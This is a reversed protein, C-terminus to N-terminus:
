ISCRGDHCQRSRKYARRAECRGWLTFLIPLGTWSIARRYRAVWPYLREALPRTLRSGWLNALIPMGATRYLLEFAPVGKIWKGRNTRVHLCEMMAERSVGDSRYPTDDFGPASCDVLILHRGSDHVKINQIESNCLSCSADYYVTLPYQENMVVEM